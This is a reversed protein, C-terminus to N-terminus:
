GLKTILKGAVWEKRTLERAQACLGVSSNLMSAFQTGEALSLTEKRSVGCHTTM